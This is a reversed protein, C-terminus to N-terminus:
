APELVAISSRGTAPDFDIVWLRDRADVAPHAPWSPEWDPAGPGGWSELLNGGAAFHRVRGGLVTAGAEDFVPEGVYVSGDAAGAIALQHIWAGFAQSGFQWEVPLEWQRPSGLNATLSTVVATRRPTGDQYSADFDPEDVVIVRGDRGIAIATPLALVGPEDPRAGATLPRLWFDIGFRVEGRADLRVISAYVNGDVGYQPLGYAHGRSDIALRNIGSDTYVNSITRGTASSYSRLTFLGTPRHFDDIVISDDSQDISAWDGALPTVARGLNHASRKRGSPSLRTVFLHLPDATADRTGIAILDGNAAFGFDLWAARAVLPKVVSRWRMAVATPEPTGPNISPQVTPAVSRNPPPSPREPADTAAAVLQEPAVTASSLLSCGTLVLAATVLATWGGARRPSGPALCLV